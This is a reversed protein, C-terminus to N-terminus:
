LQNEPDYDIPRRPPLAAQMSIEAEGRRNILGQTAKARSELRSGGKEPIRTSARECVLLAPDTPIWALDWRESVLWATPALRNHAPRRWESPTGARVAGAHFSGPSEGISVI